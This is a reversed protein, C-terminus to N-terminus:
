KSRAIQWLRAEDLVIINWKDKRIIGQKVLAAIERSVTVRSTGLIRALEEQTLRMTLRRGPGGAVPESFDSALRALLQAVRAQAKYFAMMEVQMAMLRHKRIQSKFMERAIQPDEAMANVVADRKFVFVESPRVAVASAYYPLGDYCASEGFTTGPEIIAVTKECGVPRSIYVRVRGSMLFYFRDSYEGQQYILSGKPYTCATALGRYKIWVGQPEGKVFLSDGQSM